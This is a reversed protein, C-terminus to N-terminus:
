NAEMWRSAGVDIIHQARDGARFVYVPVLRVGLIPPAQPYAFFLAPALTLNLEPWACAQHLDPEAIM